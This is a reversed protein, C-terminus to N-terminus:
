YFSGLIIFALVSTWAITSIVRTRGKAMVGIAGFGSLVLILLSYSPLNRSAPVIFELGGLILFLAGGALFTFVDENGEKDSLDKNRVFAALMFLGIILIFMNIM